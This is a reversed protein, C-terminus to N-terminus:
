NTTVTWSKTILNAKAATGDYGGSSGDPASNGTGGLNLIGGTWGKTDIFDLVYNVSATTLACNELQWSTVPGLYAGPLIISSLNSNDSLLINSGSQITLTSLDLSTISTNSNIGLSTIVNPSSPFNYSTVGTNGQLIINGGFGSLPSLDINTVFPCVNLNFFTINNSSNPFLINASDVNDIQVQGGLGTLGTLILDHTFGNNGIFFSSINQSSVPFTFGTILPNNSLNIQGGLGTYGSLDVRGNINCADIWFQNFTNTNSTPITLGTLNYNASMFFSGGFNPMVSVDLTRLDCFYFSIVSVYVSTNPLTAATLYNNANFTYSNCRTFESLDISGYVNDDVMNISAINSMRGTRMKVTKISNNPYTHSISNEAIYSDGEGLDWSVRQTSYTGVEPDFTTGSSSNTQFVFEQGVKNNSNFFSRM